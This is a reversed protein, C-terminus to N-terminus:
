ALSYGGLLEVEVAEGEEIGELDEGIVVMGDAKTVSSLLGSGTITIPEAVYGRGARRLRVRLYHRIGPSTPVRRSMRATVIARRPVGRGMMKSLVPVVVAEFGVLSSVPYGPLMFLPRGGLTAYGTPKGPKIALGHFLIRGSAELVADPVLDKRGVSTGGITIFADVKSGLRGIAGAISEVDDKVIGGDVSECGLAEISAILMPRTSDLIRGENPKGSGLDVLESGTSLVGVRVARRVAVMAIGVSALAGIHWPMVVTGARLLVEGARIDEGKPSINSMRPVAKYVEVSRGHRKADEAMVVADSGDPIPSGTYVEYAEGPELPELKGKTGGGAGICGKISFTAPNNRSASFSERSRIAYGDVATRDFPPVDVGSVVDEYLARGLSSVTAVTEGRPEPLGEGFIISLADGLPLLKRFGAMRVM